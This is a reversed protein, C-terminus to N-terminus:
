RQVFVAVTRAPVSASGTTADWTSTKVVPDSGAAQVPSLSLAAGALGPVEQTVAEDSANFVAVLGKLAPDADTGKTDDVRM